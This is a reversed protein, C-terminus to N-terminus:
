NDGPYATIMLDRGTPRSSIEKLKVAGALKKIGLDGIANIGKGILTPAIFFIYKDVLRERIFSGALSAGGELLISTIGFRGAQNLFDPLSLSGKRGKIKWVEANHSKLKGASATSTAIITKGDVNKKILDISQPFHLNQSLVIRYPNSGRFSRVTLSPNDKAATGSGILVADNESRLRHVMKRAETGTIWKSEGTETAICGDLTQAIKLTVFPLGTQIYKIYVENLTAAENKLINASVEIGARRLERAGKGKVKPNPDTMAFVVRKVGSRIIEKTCPKTRGFHCCPELSVYLDAGQAKQGAMRLAHIEAHPTGAKKHYGRGVIKGNKVVVAGVIPNPATKGRARAALEFTETIYKEDAKEAM